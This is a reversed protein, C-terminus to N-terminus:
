WFLAKINSWTTPDVAVERQYCQTDIVVQDVFAPYCDFRLSFFETSPNSGITGQFAITQWGDDDPAENACPLDLPFVGANPAGAPRPVETTPAPVNKWVGLGSPGCFPPNPIDERGVTVQIRVRKLNGENEFNDFWFGIMDDASVAIVDNRERFKGLYEAADNLGVYGVPEALGDYSGADPPPSQWPEGFPGGQWDGWQAWASGPQGRWPAPFDDDAVAIGSAFLFVAALAITGWRM